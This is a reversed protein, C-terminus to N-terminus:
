SWWRRSRRRRATLPAEYVQRVHVGQRIGDLSWGGAGAGPHHQGREVLALVQGRDRRRDQLGEGAGRQQHHVVGGRVPGAVDRLLQGRGVCPDAHPVAPGLLAKPARVEVPEAHGECTARGDHDLHVRVPRMVGRHQGGQDGRDRPVPGVEHDPRAVRLSAAHLVPPQEAPEDRAAPGGERPDDEPQRGVVEGAAELGPPRGRERAQRELADAGAPVDELDLHGVPRRAEARPDHLDRDDEPVPAEALGLHAAPDDHLRQEHDDAQAPVLQAAAARNSRGAHGVGGPPRHGPRPLRDVGVPVGSPVGTAPAAVKGPQITIKTSKPVVQVFTQGITLPLQKGDPGYFRTPSTFSKKRWTGKVTKGNTSVWATGSGTVQGDLRRKKDGLPVFPVRMVVVNKPAIRTKPKTGADFQKGEVSVSRKYTNTKRDYSYTIKNAYYPVIIKGGEPRQELPADPAFIWVPDQGPVPKAGVRKSLKQLNKADSYVNHPPYRYKVRYLYRSWRFEDANYVVKGRGQSTRLLALAQPSGGSHVYVSKWEAAWAIYYLRSSRIPGVSTPLVSQFLAMYRPIGGEAPAHWVVDAQSLGSQPRAASIDDIMVAVVHRAAVDETVPAGTLPAPM